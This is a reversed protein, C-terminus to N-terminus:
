GIRIVAREGAYWDPDNAACQELLERIWQPMSTRTIRTAGRRTVLARTVQAPSSCQDMSRRVVEYRVRDADELNEPWEPECEACAVADDPGFGIKSLEERMSSAPMEVGRRDGSATRCSTGPTHYILSFAERLLIYLTGRPTVERLKIVKTDMWQPRRADPDDSDLLPRDRSTDEGIVYGTIEVPGTVADEFEIVRLLGSDMTEEM